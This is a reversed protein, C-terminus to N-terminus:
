VGGQQDARRLLLPGHAFREGIQSLDIMTELDLSYFREEGHLVSRVVEAAGAQPPLTTVGQAASMRADLTFSEAMIRLQAALEGAYADESDWYTTITYCGGDPAPALYMAFETSHGGRDVETKRWASSIGAADAPKLAYGWDRYDKEWTEVSNESKNIMLAANNDPAYQWYNDNVLEWSGWLYIYWGDGNYRSFATRYAGWSGDERQYSVIYDRSYRPYDTESLGLYNAYWDYLAQSFNSYNNMWSSESYYSATERHLEHYNGESDRLMVLLDTTWDTYWGDGADMWGDLPDFPISEVDAFQVEHQYWWLEPTGDSVGDFVGELSVDCALRSLRTDTVGAHMTGGGEVACDIGNEKVEHMRSFAYSEMSSWSEMSRNAAGDGLRFLYRFHDPDTWSRYGMGVYLTGDAEELLYLMNFSSYADSVPECSWAKTNQECLQAALNEGAWGSTGDEADRFADFREATLAEEATSVYAYGSERNHSLFSVVVKGAANKGISFSPENRGLVFPFTNGPDDYVIEEVPYTKGFLESQDGGKGTFTCAVSLAAILLVAVATYAATKPKKVLLTIRERLGKDSDTMMTATVLLAPRKECTIRILTRGYAARENEGLRRITAEDCALEADRRSLEAAWWVLPNYWHLALCVGRLVAWLNDGHHYHTQEHALSYRLADEDAMTEPTVYIVPKVVGFLCPTDTKGTVYVPLAANTKVRRRSRRLKAGFSVNVLLFVGGLVTAGTLWVTTAIKGWDIAKKVTVSPETVTNTTNQVIDPAAPENPDQAPIPAPSPTNQGGSIDPKADNQVIAPAREPVANLVSLNSKGFSVPVLLRVLVLLWLAYQMRLSIKGRLLYRLAIVVAILASSSVIWEMM